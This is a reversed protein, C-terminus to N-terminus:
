PLPKYTLSRPELGCAQATVGSVRCYKEENSSVHFRSRYEVRYEVRGQEVVSSEM